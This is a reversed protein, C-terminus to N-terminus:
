HSKRSIIWNEEQKRDRVFAAVAIALGIVGLLALVLLNKVVEPANLQYLVSFTFLLLLAASFQIGYVWFDSSCLELALYRLEHNDSQLFQKGLARNRTNLAIVFVLILSMVVLMAFLARPQTEPLAYIAYGIYALFAFFIFVVAFRQTSGGALKREKEM